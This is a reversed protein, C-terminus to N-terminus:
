LVLSMWVSDEVEFGHRAYFRRVATNAGETELFMRAMGRRRCDALMESLAVGGQGGGREQVFFEDLLADRGGSELSYGWTIVAYGGPEGREDVILWVVGLDDSELLPALARRVVEPDFPHRDVRCFEEVLPLLATTDDPGARRIM